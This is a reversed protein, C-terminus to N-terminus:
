KRIYFRPSAYILRDIHFLMCRITNKKCILTFFDNQHRTKTLTVLDYPRPISADRPSPIQLNFGCSTTHQCRKQPQISTVEWTPQGSSQGNARTYIAQIFIGEIQQIGVAIGHLDVSILQSLGSGFLQRWTKQFSLGLSTYSKIYPSSIGLYSNNLGGFYQFNALRFLSIGM